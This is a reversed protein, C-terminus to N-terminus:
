YAAGISWFAYSYIDVIFVDFTGCQVKNGSVGSRQAYHTCHYLLALVGIHIVLLPTLLLVFYVVISVMTLIAVVLLMIHLLFFFTPM